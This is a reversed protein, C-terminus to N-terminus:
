SLQLLQLAKDKSDTVLVKSQSDSFIDKTVKEMVSRENENVVMVITIKGISDLDRKGLMTIAVADEANLTVGCIDTYDIIIQQYQRVVEKYEKSQFMFMLDLSNLSGELTICAINETISIEYQMKEVWRTLRYLTFWFQTSLM